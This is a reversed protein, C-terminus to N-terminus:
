LKSNKFIFTLSKLFRTEENILILQNRIKEKDNSM